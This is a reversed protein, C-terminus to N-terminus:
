FTVKAGKYSTLQGYINVTIELSKIRDWQIKRKKQYGVKKM